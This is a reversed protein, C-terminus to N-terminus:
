KIVEYRIRHEKGGDSKTVVENWPSTTSYYEALEENLVYIVFTDTMFKISTSFMDSIQTMNSDVVKDTRLYIESLKDCARFTGKGIYGVNKLDIEKLSTCNRIAMDEIRVVNESLNIRQLNWCGDFCSKPITTVQTPIDISLLNQCNRFADEGIITINDGKFVVTELAECDRFACAGLETIEENLYIIELRTLVNKFTSFYQSKQHGQQDDFNGKIFEDSKISKIKTVSKPLIIRNCNGLYYSLVGDKDISFKDEQTDFWKGWVNVDGTMISFEKYEIPEGTCKEDEFWLLQEGRHYNDKYNIIKPLQAPTNPKVYTQFYYRLEGIPIGSTEAEKESAYNLVIAYGREWKAYLTRSRWIPKGFEYPKTCAEDKFWGVLYHQFKRVDEEPEKTIQLFKYTDPEMKTGFVNGGSEDFSTPTFTDDYVVGGNTEYTITYTLLSKAGFYAGIVFVISLVVIIAVKLSHYNKTHQNFVGVEKTELPM